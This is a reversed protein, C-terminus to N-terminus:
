LLNGEAGRITLLFDNTDPIEANAKTLPGTDLVWRLEGQAGPGTLFSFDDCSTLTLGAVLPLMVLFKKHKM